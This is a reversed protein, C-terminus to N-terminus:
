RKNTNKKKSKRLHIKKGLLKSMCFDGIYFGVLNKKVQLSVFKKGNYVKFTNGVHPLLITSNRSWINRPKEHQKGLMRFLSYNLYPTKWSSRKM